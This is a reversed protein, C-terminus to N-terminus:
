YVQNFGIQVRNSPGETDFIPDVQTPDTLKPSNSTLTRINQSPCLNQLINVKSKDVTCVSLLLTFIKCFKTVKESYIFKFELIM